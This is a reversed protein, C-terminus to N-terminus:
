RKNTEVCTAEVAVAKVGRAFHKGVAKDALDPRGCWEDGGSTYHQGDSTKHATEMAENFRSLYEDVLGSLGKDVWLNAARIEDADWTHTFPRDGPYTAPVGPQQNAVFVMYTRNKEYYKRADEITAAREAEINHIRVICHTYRRNESTRTFTRGEYTATHKFAM